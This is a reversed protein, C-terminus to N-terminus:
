YARIFSTKNLRDTYGLRDTSMSNHFLVSISNTPASILNWYMNHLELSREIAQLHISSDQRSMRKEISFFVCKSLTERIERPVLM